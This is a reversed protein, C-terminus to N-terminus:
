SSSISEITQRILAAARDPQEMPLFHGSDAVVELSGDALRAAQEAAFEAPHSSSDRGAVVLVPPRVEPLREWAGHAAGATFFAAEFEPGCALTWEGAEEVVGCNVYAELARRDWAAFVKKSAFHELADARSSFTSRRRRAGVALPHHDIPGYPPPFVIPEIAVIAALTGPSLIEAMLLSAAGLSHGVGVVPGSAGAAVALGDRATDWWDIPLDPTASGGHARHDWAVIPGDHNLEELVPLWTGRCFGAAHAFLLTAGGSGPWTEVEIEVGSSDIRSVASQIARNGGSHRRTEM